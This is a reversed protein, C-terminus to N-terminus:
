EEDTEDCFVLTCGWPMELTKCNSGDKSCHIYKINGIQEEKQELDYTKDCPASIDKAEKFRYIECILDKYPGASPTFQYIGIHNSCVDNSQGIYTSTMKQVKGFDSYYALVPDITNKAEIKSSTISEEISNANEDKACALAMLGIGLYLLYNKM